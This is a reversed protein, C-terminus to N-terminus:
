INFDNNFHNNFDQYKMRPPREYVKRASIRICWDTHVVLVFVLWGNGSSVAKQSTIAFKRKRAKIGTVNAKARPFNLRLPFIKMPFHLRRPLPDHRHPPPPPRLHYPPPYMYEKPNNKRFTRSLRASSLPLYLFFLASVRDMAPTCKLVLRPLRTLSIAV